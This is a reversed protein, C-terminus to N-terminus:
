RRKVIRVDLGKAGRAFRIDQVSPRQVHSSRALQALADRKAAASRSATADSPVIVTYGRLYADAATFSVCSEASFGGILLTRVKLHQLLLELPTQYFASHKPKLVFYDDPTPALLSVVSRGRGEHLCHEVQASFDSRWRGFNDNAYICPVGARRGRERLEALRQAAPLASRLLQRGGAFAFDNIVDVLLLAVPCQDPANGHLVGARAGALTSSPHEATM